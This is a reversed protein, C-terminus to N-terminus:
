GVARVPVLAEGSAIARTRAAFGCFMPFLDRLSFGTETQGDGIEHKEPDDVTGDASFVRRKTPPRCSSARALAISGRGRERASQSARPSSGASVRLKAVFAVGSSARPDTHGKL